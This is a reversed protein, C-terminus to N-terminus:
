EIIQKKRQNNVYEYLTDLSVNGVTAIYYSPSWFADGWLKESMEDPFEKRLNRSTYTKLFNIYTTISTSPKTSILLHVHDVGCEQSIIQVGQNEAVYSSLEMFRDRIKENSFCDRRYKVCLILHYRLSYVANHAKELEKM